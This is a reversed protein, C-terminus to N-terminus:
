RGARSCLGRDRAHLLLLLTKADATEEGQVLEIARELPLEVVQIDEGEAAVGGGPGVRDGPEYEATFLYTRERSLQPALYVRFAPTVAGVRFGTEEEAERRVAEHAEQGDLLGGATELLQGDARGDLLVPLRFQRTLVVTGYRRSYLLVAARDGRHVSVRTAGRTRGDPQRAGLRYEALTLWDETVTRVARVSWQQGDPPEQGADPPGAM